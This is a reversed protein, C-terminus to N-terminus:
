ISNLKYTPAKSLTYRSNEFFLWYDGIDNKNIDMHVLSYLIGYKEAYKTHRKLVNSNRTNSM